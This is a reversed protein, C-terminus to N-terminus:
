RIRGEGDTTWGLLPPPYYGSRGARDYIDQRPWIAWVLVLVAVGGGLTMLLRTRAHRRDRGLYVLAKLAAYLVTLEALFAALVLLVVRASPTTLFDGASDSPDFREILSLGSVVCLLVGLLVFERYRALGRRRQWRPITSPADQHITAM